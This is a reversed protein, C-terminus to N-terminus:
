TLRPELKDTLLKMLCPTFAIDEKSKEDNPDDSENRLKARTPDPNDRLSLTLTPVPPRDKSSADQTLELMEIREKMRIPTLSETNSKALKPDEIERLDNLRIPELTDDKPNTVTPEQM